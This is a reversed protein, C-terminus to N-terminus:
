PCSRGQRPVGFSDTGLSGQGAPCADQARTLYFFVQGLAPTTLEVTATDPGDNEVCVTAGSQFDAAVSARLTDYLLPSSTGPAAPPDWALDSLSTFHLNLTEGPAGWNAASTDNCDMTTSPCAPDALAGYGDGDRDICGATRLKTETVNNGALSMWPSDPFLPNPSIIRMRWHYFTGPALSGVLIESDTASGSGGPLGTDFSTSAVLGGGNFSTGLPKTEAQLRVKGRGAPTMGRERVRLLSQSDSKGLLAVVASSDSRRQQPTRVLGPGGGGFVVFAGGEFSDGDSLDPAGMIVDSYGDGNVDGALAVTYAFHAGPSNSEMTWAPTSALGSASGLYVFARGEATEGNSYYPAGIIVDSYGDGNVDGATAVSNGLLAGAQNSEMSWDPAPSLGSPSGLYLYARGELSQGNSDYPAGIIVDSYGDGNVDGATAVSLGFSSSLMPPGDVCWAPVQGPGSPSGLFLCAYGRESASTPAGVLVDSYGDGDVDGATAVSSGFEAVYLNSEITWVPSLALGSPSGLFLSAQGELESGNSYGPSGVIVDAYGDGNVDGAAASTGFGSSALSGQGTWAPTTALGVNIGIYLYAAGADALPGNDHSPAGIMIDSFGDGNIDGVTAASNGFYAGAQDGTATWVPTTALGSASGLYLFAKGQDALGDDYHPAGVLVDSFGDGNVDGATAVSTGFKADAKNGETSWPVGPAIDGPSGLYLFASGEDTQGNDYTYAGVLLDSFGDGNVDGATAVAGGFSAAFQHTEATWGPLTAFASVSGFYVYVRGANSQDNDEGPAGVIADAYGDGNLDGATSVSTGFFAGTQDGEATWIAAPAPGSAGGFYMYVRGRDTQVDDYYPAGVLIEAYGNGNADGATSVSWGFHANAQDSEATWVPSALPGTAAGLYVYARGEQSQGNSYNPAGIIVDAYGDANVDGATAVAQGFFASVQNSEATWVPSAALGSASGLYVFARGEQAQGNAYYPAGVIVDAFGDRNVDGAYAVSQGFLAGPQNSESTWAPSAALGSASGLYLYARGEDTQGNDYQFAGVVVDAYGDGNVDGATSVSFGFYASDQDSEATWAPSLSLGSASGLYLYARGEDTQGNDYLYAGVIVDSYGDGNVDGATSVSYGFYASDQNSEGTWAASTTVPDITIPFVANRADVVLRIGRRNERALGEMWSALIEGRADTAKLRAYRLAPAGSSTVFDISQRDESVRPSLDGWLGFDLYLDGDQRAQGSPVPLIFLQELGESTNEYRETFAGRRYEVAHGSPHLSAAAVAPTSQGYGYGTLSLGWRWSATKDTRPVVRMGEPTFYTRFGQARNPAHWAPGVEDVVANAQWSVDYEKAALDQQVQQQWGSPNATPAAPNSTPDPAATLPSALLFIPLFRLAVALLGHRSQGIGGTPKEARLMRRATAM